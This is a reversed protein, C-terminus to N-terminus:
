YKYKIMKMEPLTEGDEPCSGEFFWVSRNEFGRNVM